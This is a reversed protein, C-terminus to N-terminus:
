EAARPCVLNGESDRIHVKGDEVVFNWEEPIKMRARLESDTPIEVEKWGTYDEFVGDEIMYGIQFWGFFAVFIIGLVVFVALIPASQEKLKENSQVDATENSMIRMTVGGSAVKAELTSLRTALADLSMTTGPDSMRLLTMEASLRKDSGQKGISSIYANELLGAQYMITDYSMKSALEKLKDYEGKTLDLLETSPDNKENKFVSVVLLDRYYRM